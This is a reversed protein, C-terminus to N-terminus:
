AWACWTYCMIRYILLASKIPSFDISIATLKDLQGKTLQLARRLKLLTQINIITNLCIGLPQQIYIELEKTFTSLLINLWCWQALFWFQRLSTKINPKVIIYPHNYVLGFLNNFQYIIDILFRKRMVLSICSNDQLCCQQTYQQVVLHIAILIATNVVYTFHKFMM